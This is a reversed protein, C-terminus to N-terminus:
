EPDDLPETFPKQPAIRAVVQDLEKFVYGHRKPSYRYRAVFGEPIGEGELLLSRPAAVSFPLEVGELPGDLIPVDPM